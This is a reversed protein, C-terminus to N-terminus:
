GENHDMINSHLEALSVLAMGAKVAQALSQDLVRQCRVMQALAKHEVVEEATEEVFGMPEAEQEM